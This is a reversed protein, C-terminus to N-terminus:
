KEADVEALSVKNHLELFPAFLKRFITLRQTVIDASFLYGSNPEIRNERTPVPLLEVQVKFVPEQIEPVAIPTERPDIIEKSIQTIRAPYKGYLASPFSDYEIDVDQGEAIQGVVASSVYLNGILKKNEPVLTLLPSRTDARNSQNPLVATVVGNVPAVITLSHASQFEQIKTEISLRRQEIALLSKELENPLAGLQQKYESLNSDIEELKLAAAETEQQVELLKLSVQRMTASAIANTSLLAEYSRSDETLLEEKRKITEFTKQLSIKQNGLLTIRRALAHERDSTLARELDEERRALALQAELDKIADIASDRGEEGYTTSVIHALIDGKEVLAGEEVAITTYVGPSPPYIRTVGETPVINGRVKITLNIKAFALFLIIVAMVTALFFVWAMGSFPGSVYPSGIEEATYRELAERRFLFDNKKV